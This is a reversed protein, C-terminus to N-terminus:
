FKKSLQEFNTLDQPVYKFDKLIGEINTNMAKDIDISTVKAGEQLLRKIIEVGLYGNGGIVLISESTWPNDM